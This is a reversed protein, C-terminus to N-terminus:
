VLINVVILYYSSLAHVLDYTGKLRVSDGLSSLKRPLSTASLLATPV